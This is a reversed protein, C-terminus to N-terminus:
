GSYVNCDWATPYDAWDTTYTVIGDADVGVFKASVEKGDRIIRVPDGRRFRVCEALLIMGCDSHHPEGITTGCGRCYGTGDDDKRTAREM